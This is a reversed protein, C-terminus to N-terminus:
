IKSVRYRTHEVRVEFRISMCAAGANMAELLSEKAATVETEFTLSETARTTDVVDKETSMLTGATTIKERLRDEVVSGHRHNTTQACFTTNVVLSSQQVPATRRCGRYESQM